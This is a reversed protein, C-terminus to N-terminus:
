FCNGDTTCQANHKMLNGKKKKLIFWTSMYNENVETIHKTRRITGPFFENCDNYSLKAISFKKSQLKGM